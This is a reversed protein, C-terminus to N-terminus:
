RPTFIAAGGGAGAPKPQTGAPPRGDASRGTSDDTASVLTFSGDAEKHITAAIVADPVLKSTDFNPPLHLAVTGASEGADDASVTLQTKDASVDRVIAELDIDGSAPDGDKRTVEEVTPASGPGAAPRFAVDVRTLTGVAPLAPPAPPAAPDPPPLHVLLSVGRASVTYARGDPDAFTVTGHFSAKDSHGHVAPKREEFTGDALAKVTAKLRDGLSPQKSSHLAILQGDKTAVAYGHGSHSLHAVTGAVTPQDAAPPPAPAPTTPTTSTVPPPAAPAAAAGAATPSPAPGGGLVVRRQPASVNGSPPALASGGGTQGEPQLGGSGAAAAVPGEAVLLVEGPASAFSAPTLAPGVAAGILVGSALVVVGVAGLSRRGRAPIALGPHIAAAAVAPEMREPARFPTRLEGRRRGCELCYRQAAALPGACAACTGAAPFDIV